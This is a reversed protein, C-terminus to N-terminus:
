SMCPTLGSVKTTQKSALLKGRGVENLRQEIHMQKWSELLREDAVATEFEPLELVLSTNIRLMASFADYAPVGLTGTPLQHTLFTKANLTIERLTKNVTLAEALAV